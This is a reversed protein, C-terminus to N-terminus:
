SRWTLSKTKGDGARNGGFANLKLDAGQPTFFADVWGVPEEDSFNYGVAPINILHIGDDQSFAYKHSHGYFIAKVKRQPRVLEFLRQVDLLEGDGDGLTHHVFLITPRGDSDGLFRGLWERQSKGLLGAVKNTYLLSDLIVFRLSPREIVLVHKGSIKQRTGPPNEFVKFFNERDDHNGLGIFVPMREALPALLQKVAEYDATEGTLRAADGDIIVGEPRADAVQPVAKKLNEWPFFGRYENKPDAPIHTDSLLAFHVSKQAVEEGILNLERILFAGAFAKAATFVFRRRSSPQYLIGPM